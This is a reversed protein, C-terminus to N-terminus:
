GDWSRAYTRSIGPFAGSRGQKGLVTTSSGGWEVPRWVVPTATPSGCRWGREVPSLGPRRRCARLCNQSRRSSPRLRCRTRATSGRRKWERSASASRAVPARPRGSVRCRPTAPTARQRVKVFGASPTPQACGAVYGVTSQWKSGAGIPSGPKRTGPLAERRQPDSCSYRRPSRMSSARRGSGDASIRRTRSRLCRVALWTGASRM